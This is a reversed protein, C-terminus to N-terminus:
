ACVVPAASCGPGSERPGPRTKAHGGTQARAAGAHGQPRCCPGGARNQPRRDGPRRDGSRRDPGSRRNSAGSRGDSIVQQKFRETLGNALFRGVGDVPGGVASSVFRVPKVPFTQAQASAAVALLLLAVIGSSM